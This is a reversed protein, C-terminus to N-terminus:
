ITIDLVAMEAKRNDVEVLYCMTSSAAKHGLYGQIQGLSQTKDWLLMAMSHKLAHMHAKSPHIGALQAYRRIFQDARQRSFPFLKSNGSRHVNRRDSEQTFEAAFRPRAPIPRCSTSLVPIDTCLIRHVSKCSTVSVAMADPLRMKIPDWFSNQLAAM